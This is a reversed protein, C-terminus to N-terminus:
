KENCRDKIITLIEDDTKETHYIVDVGVSQYEHALTSDYTIVLDVHPFKQERILTFHLTEILQEYQVLSQTPHNKVYIDIPQDQLLEIIKSERNFFIGSHAIILVSFKTTDLPYTQFSYGGVTYIPNCGIISQKLARIEEESFSVVSTLSCYKYPLCQTWRGNEFPILGCKKAKQESCRIVESGHQILMKNKCSLQDELFAWRDKHNIFYIFSDSPIKKCANWFLLWRFSKLSCLMYFYGYHNCISIYTIYSSISTSIVDSITVMQFLSIYKNNKIMYNDPSINENLIWCVDGIHKNIRDNISTSFNTSAIFYNGAVLSIKASKLVRISSKVANFIVYFALILPFAVVLSYKILNYQTLKEFKGCIRFFANRKTLGYQVEYNYLYIDNNLTRVFLQADRLINM